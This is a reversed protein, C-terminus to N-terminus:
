LFRPISKECVKHSNILINLQGKLLLDKQHIEGVKEQQLTIGNRSNPTIFIFLKKM